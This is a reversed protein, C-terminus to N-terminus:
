RSEESYEDRLAWDDVRAGGTDRADAVGVESQVYVGGEGREGGEM